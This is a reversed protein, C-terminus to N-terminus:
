AHPPHIWAPSRMRVFSALPCVSTGCWCVLVCVCVCVCLCMCGSSVLGGTTTPEVIESGLSLDEQSVEFLLEQPTFQRDVRMGGGRVSYTSQRGGPSTANSLGRGYQSGQRVLPQPLTLRAGLLCARRAYICAQSLASAERAAVAAACAARFAVVARRMGARYAHDAAQFIRTQSEASSDSSSLMRSLLVDAVKAHHTRSLLSLRDPVADIREDGDTGHDGTTHVLEENGVLLGVYASSTFCFLDDVSESEAVINFEYEARSLLRLVTM